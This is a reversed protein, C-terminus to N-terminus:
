AYLNRWENTNEKGDDREQHREPKQTEEHNNAEKM